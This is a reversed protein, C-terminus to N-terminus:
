NIVVLELEVMLLEINSIEWSFASWPVTFCWVRLLDVFGGTGAPGCGSGTGRLAGETKPTSLSSTLVCLVAGLHDSILKRTKKGWLFWQFPLKVFIIHGVWWLQWPFASQFTTWGQGWHGETLALWFPRVEKGWTETRLSWNRVKM